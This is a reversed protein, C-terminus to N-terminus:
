SVDRTRSYKHVSGRTLTDLNNIIAGSKNFRMIYCPVEDVIREIVALEKQWWELTVMPRILTALLRRWILKRDTILVIDNDTDQQLFLLAHLPASTSSVNAVEGHSWTGHVKWGSEWRRAINRDDCLIEARGELMAMTTSKGAGSHGVFMLGRGNFIAAGSHLLVASRDALVPALWIQDTPLLSLSHWGITKLHDAYRPPSYISAHTHQANFIAVRHLEPDDGDSSTGRYIWIGNKRSIIWPAKRYLVSGLDEISIDPMYFCHHLTVNDTGQEGSAFPIFEDKFKVLNLDFDSEVRVDIGAIHFRRCHRACM